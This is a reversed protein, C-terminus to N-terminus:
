ILYSAFPNRPELRMHGAVCDTEPHCRVAEDGFKRTLGQLAHGSLRLKTRPPVGASKPLSMASSVSFHPLTTRAALMLGSHLRRPSRADPSQVAPVSAAIGPNLDCLEGRM